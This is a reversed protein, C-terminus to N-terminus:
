KKVEQLLLELSALDEVSFVKVTPDIKAILGNLVKKPGVECFIEVGQQVMVKVSDEWLVSGTVQSTLVEKIKAADFLPQALINPVVPIDMSDFSIKDLEIKLKDAAPQMLACHFPASVALPIVRKAGKEKCLQSAKEVAEKKGSIVIQGPSNFNAPQVIGLDSAQMCADLVAKRDLNLVAAMAGQGQPVATQMFVGRKRVLAVGDEFKLAGSICFAAYEGLSHGALFSPEISKELLVKAIAVSVTFIAPQTIETQILKDEPGNFCLDKILLGCAPEASDFVCRASPFNEYIEKGMGVYQSGQGPFVFAVKKM